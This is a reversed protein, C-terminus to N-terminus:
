TGQITLPVIGLREVVEVPRTGRWADVVERVDPWSTEGDAYDHFALVGQPHLLPLALDIDQRVSDADHSGDIFILDFRAQLTPLVEAFRGRHVRVNHRVRYRDLNATMETMTDQGGLGTAQFTDVAVVERASQALCITSRGCYSGMELVRRGRALRHLARGEQPTLWGRVDDPFLFPDGGRWVQGTPPCVVSKRSLQAIREAQRPDSELFFGCGCNRYHEAKWAAVDSQNRESATRAPHMILKEWRVGWRRLWAETEARWRELRATVVLRAPFLRPLWRPKANVLWHRYRDLGEGADADPVDPDHCLIGDFDTAIGSGYSAESAHGVWVGNNFHCWELLQLSPLIRAYYDVQNVTWATPYIAAFLANRGAMQQRARRMAGGGYITDDVVLLPGNRDGGWVGGRSGHGIQRLGHQPSLEYLPLHLYMALVSAPLIGSRPIGAIGSLNPPLKAILSITDQVLTTTSTWEIPPDPITYDSCTGCWPVEVWAGTEDRYRLKRQWTCNGHKACTRLPIAKGGGCTSCDHTEGTEPGLHVCPIELRRRSPVRSRTKGDGGWLLNHAPSHLWLWCLVCQDPNGPEGTPHALDCHTEDCRIDTRGTCLCPKRTM